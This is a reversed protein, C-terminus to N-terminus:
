KEARTQPMTTDLVVESNVAPPELNDEIIVETDTSSSPTDVVRNRDPGMIIYDAEPTKTYRPTIKPKELTDKVFDNHDKSAQLTSEVEITIKAIEAALIEDSSMGEREDRLREEEKEKVNGGVKVWLKELEELWGLATALKRVGEDCDGLVMVDDLRSGLDGVRDKNFLVRPVGERAYQPLSAFPQVSLSTGIIIVLDAMVVMPTKDRFTQPLPEGFFVIDPKVLGNCEPVICHPVQGSEVVKKMLDEPYESKCEICRQTAFSGHAEVINEDSVGAQRELCDINQTFLQFLMGKEELLAIFAHSITPYFRGPYLEKALAYFPEPNERFFSIDFM